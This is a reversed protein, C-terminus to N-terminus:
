FQGRATIGVTSSSSSNAPLSSNQMRAQLRGQSETGGEEEEGAPESLVLTGPPRGGVPDANAEQATDVATSPPGRGPTHVGGPTSHSWPWCQHHKLLASSSM